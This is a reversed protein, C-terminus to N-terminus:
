VTIHAIDVSESRQTEICDETRTPGRTHDRALGSVFWNGDVFFRLLLDADNSIGIRPTAVIDLTPQVGEGILIEDDRMLDIKDQLRDIRLAQCLMAPGRTLQRLRDTGRNKIMQDIGWVPEIARILVASGKGLRDTVVNMCHKAHIPYVYLTGAPGFMAANSKTQGRASHSALDGSALYAETEM